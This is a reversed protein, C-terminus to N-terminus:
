EGPHTLRMQLRARIAEMWQLVRQDRHGDHALQTADAYRQLRYLIMMSAIPAKSKHAEAWELQKVEEATLVYFMYVTELQASLTIDEDAGLLPKIRLTCVSGPNLTIGEKLHARNGTIMMSDTLDIPPSGTSVSELRVEFAEFEEPADWVFLPRTESLARNGPDPQILRVPRAAAESGSRYLPADQTLLDVDKRVWDPLRTKGEYFKGNEVRVNAALVRVQPQPPPTQKPTGKPAKDPELKVTLPKEPEPKEDPQPAVPAPQVALPKEEEPPYVQSSYQVPPTLARYILLATLLAAAPAATWWVVRRRWFPIHKSTQAHLTEAQRMDRYLTFCEPCEAIHMLHRQYDKHREGQEALAILTELCPCDEPIRNQMAEGITREIPTLPESHGM